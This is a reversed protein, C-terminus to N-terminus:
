VSVTTATTPLFVALAVVIMAAAAATFLTIGVNAVAFAVTVAAFM